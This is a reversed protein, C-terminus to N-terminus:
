LQNSYWRLSSEDNRDGIFKAYRLSDRLTRSLTVDAETEFIRPSLLIHWIYQDGMQPKIYIFVPVPLNKEDKGVVLNNQAFKIFTYDARSM